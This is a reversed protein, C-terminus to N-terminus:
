LPEGRSLWVVATNWVSEAQVAATGDDSTSVV